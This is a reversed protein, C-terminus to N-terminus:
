SFIVCYTGRWQTMPKWYRFFAFIRILLLM